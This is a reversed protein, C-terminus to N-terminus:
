ASAKRLVVSLDSEVTSSSPSFQDPRFEKSLGSLLYTLWGQIHEDMIEGPQIIQEWIVTSNNSLPDSSFYREWGFSVHKSTSFNLFIENRRIEIEMKHKDRYRDFRICLVNKQPPLYYLMELLHYGATENIEAAIRGMRDPLHSAEIQIWSTNPDANEETKRVLKLQTLLPNIWLTNRPGRNL